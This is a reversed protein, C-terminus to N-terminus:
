YDGERRVINTYEVIKMRNNVSTQQKPQKKDSDEQSHLKYKPIMNMKSKEQKKECVADVKCLDKSLKRTLTEQKDKDQSLNLHTQNFERSIITRDKIITSDKKSDRGNFSMDRERTKVYERSLSIHIKKNMNNKDGVLNDLIRTNQM